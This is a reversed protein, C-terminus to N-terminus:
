IPLFGTRREFGVITDDAYRVVVADGTACRQRWKFALSGGLSGLIVFRSASRACFCSARTDKAM